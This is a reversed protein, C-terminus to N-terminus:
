FAYALGGDTEHAAVKFIRTVLLDLCTGCPMQLGDLHFVVRLLNGVFGQHAIEELDVVEFLGVALTYVNARLVKGGNPEVVGLFAVSGYFDKARQHLHPIMRGRLDSLGHDEVGSLVVMLVVKVLAALRRLTM